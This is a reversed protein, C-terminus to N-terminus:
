CCYYSVRKYRTDFSFKPFEGNSKKIQFTPPLLIHAPNNSSCNVQVVLINAYPLIKKCAHSDPNSSRNNDTKISMM